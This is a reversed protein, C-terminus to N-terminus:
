LLKRDELEKLIKDVLYDLDMSGDIIMDSDTPEEFPDSIGTFEKIIGERAMKYLGKCDREECVELSTNVWIQFYDGQNSIMDKNFDRDAQYPAINAVMCLGGHKVVESAVYGIRRINISRDTKNFGLGKSLHTKVIDGDLYTMKMPLSKEKLRTM